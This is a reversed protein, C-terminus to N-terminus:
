SCEAPFRVNWQGHYSVLSHIELCVIVKLVAVSPHQVPLIVLVVFWPSLKTSYDSGIMGNRTEKYRSINDTDWLYHKLRELASTEGGPFPFVSRPDKAQVTFM